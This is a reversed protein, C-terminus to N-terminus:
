QSDATYLFVGAAAAGGALNAIFYIALQPASELGMLFLATGVAPNFAAGSISGVSLAGALVIAAIAVGYLPNGAASRSLAVQLIVWALAFTFLFEVIFSHLLPRPSTAEAPGSFLFSVLLGAILAAAFQAVLYGAAVRPTCRRRLCFALTVAPNYHAGSIPGGAYIVAVLVAAVAIAAHPSGGRVVFGIVLVLFFTGIFEVLYKQM